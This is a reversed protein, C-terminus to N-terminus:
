YLRRYDCECYMWNWEDSIYTTRFECHENSRTFPLGSEISWRKHLKACVNKKQVYNLGFAKYIFIFFCSSRVFQEIESPFEFRYFPRCSWHVQESADSKDRKNNNRKNFTRYAIHPWAPVHTIKRLFYVGFSLPFYYTNWQILSPRNPTSHARLSYCPSRYIYSHHRGKRLVKYIITSLIRSVHSAQYSTALMYTNIALTITSRANRPQVFLIQTQVSCM